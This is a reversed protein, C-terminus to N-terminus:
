SHCAWTPASVVPAAPANAAVSAPSSTGATVDAGGTVPEDVARRRPRGPHLAPAISDADGERARLYSVARRAEDYARLLVTFARLRQDSAAALLAPGQERLGVIRMLRASLLYATQLDDATTACKRQIAQWNEQMVKSLIQLDQAVNKYGNAGKLQSFQASDILGHSALANADALLTERVNNAEGVVDGLGEAAPDGDPLEDARLQPRPRLRGAQRLL